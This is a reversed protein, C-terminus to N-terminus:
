STCTLRCISAIPLAIPNSALCQTRLSRPWRWTCSPRADGWCAPRTSIHNSPSRGIEQDPNAGTELRRFLKLLLRKGYRVNTNSQEVGLVHPTLAERPDGRLWPYAITATAAVDGQDGRWLRQQAFAGLLLTDFAKNWIADYLVGEDEATRLLAVVANPRESRLTVAQDGVAFALPLVYTEPEGATFHVKLLTLYVGLDLPIAEAVRVAQIMRAKSGFWRRPLLYGPLIQELAARGDGILLNAWPGSTTLLPLDTTSTTPHSM